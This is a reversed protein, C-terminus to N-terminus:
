PVTRVNGNPDIFQSGRPLAAAEQPTSIRPLSSQQPAPQQPGAPAQPAPAVPPRGQYKDLQPAAGLVPAAAGGAGFRKSDLDFAEIRRKASGQTYSRLQKLVNKLDDPTQAQELSGRVAQLFTLEQVAITGLAGGTPSSARMEALEDFGVNALITKIKEKLAFANTQPVNRLIGGVLGTSPLGKADALQEAKDIQDLIINNKADLTQLSMVAKPYSAVFKGAAEGIEAQAKASAINKPITAVAPATPDVANPMTFETGTDKWQVARKMSLYRQQNQPTLTQYHLWERVNSPDESATAKRKAEALLFDKVPAPNQTIRSLDTLAKPVGPIPQELYASVENRQVNARAYDEAQRQGQAEALGFQDRALLNTADHHRKLEGFQDRALANTTELQRQQQEMQRNQLGRQYYQGLANTIGEAGQMWDNRINGGMTFQPVNVM